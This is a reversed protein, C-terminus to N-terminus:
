GRGTPTGDRHPTRPTSWTAGGDFSRSLHVDYAYTGDGSRVLWHAALSGDPLAAMSPFDAWNVFWNRGEAITRPASWGTGERVAFRLRVGSDARPELWSLYLHGDPATVLNPQASGPPAPSPIERAETLALAPILVAVVAFSLRRM